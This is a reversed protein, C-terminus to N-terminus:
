FSSTATIVAIQTIRFGGGSTGRAGGRWVRGVGERVGGGITQSVFVGKFIIENQFLVYNHDRLYRGWFHM